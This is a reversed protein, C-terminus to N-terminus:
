ASGGRPDLLEGQGAEVQRKEREHRSMVEYALWSGCPDGDNLQGLLKEPFGHGDHCGWCWCRPCAGECRPDSCARGAGYGECIPCVGHHEATERDIM